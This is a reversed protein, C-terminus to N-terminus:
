KPEPNVAQGAADILTPTILLIRTRHTGDPLSTGQGTLVVTHQDPIGHLQRTHVVQQVTQATNQPAAKPEKSAGPSTPAFGVVTLSLNGTDAEVAPFLDLALDESEPPANPPRFRISALRASLTTVKPAASQTGGPTADLDAMLKRADAPRLIFTASSGERGTEFDATPSSLRLRGVTDGSVEHVKTELQIQAPTANIPALVSELRQLDPETTRVFLVGTRDNYFMASQYQAPMADPPTATFHLGHQNLYTRLATGADPPNTGIAKGLERELNPVVAGRSLRYRRNLLPPTNQTTPSRFVIAYDEISFEVPRDANHVVRELIRSLPMEGIPQQWTIRPADGRDNPAPDVIYNFTWGNPAAARSRVALEEIAEAMPTGAFHLGSLHISELKARIQERNRYPAFGEPVPTRAESKPAPSTTQINIRTIGAAQAAKVVDLAEAMPADSAIRLSLVLDHDANSRRKLEDTLAGLDFAQDGLQFRGEPLCDIQLAMPASVADAPAPNNAALLLVRRSFGMPVVLLALALVTIWGSGGLQPRTPTPHTLLREVRQKLSRSSELIGVFSLALMPEASCHRAVELLAAPYATPDQPARLHQVQEDVALERLVRIRANAIWAVPNWWWLVQVGVQLANVWLDRRRIHILEHLLVDRLAEPRMAEALSQPLLLTPHPLGCVAPSHNETTLLLRPRRSLGAELSAQALLSDLEPTAPSATRLLSHVRRQRRFLVIALTTSGALWLVLLLSTPDTSKRLVYSHLPAIPPPEAPVMEWTASLNPPLGSVARIERPKLALRGIWYAASTPLELTPPLILKVVVLLWLAQRLSSRLRRGITLDIAGILLALAAAQVLSSLVHNLTAHGADQLLQLM